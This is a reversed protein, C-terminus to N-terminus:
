RAAGDISVARPAYSAGTGLYGERVRADNRIADARDMFEIWFEVGQNHKLLQPMAGALEALQQEVEQLPM